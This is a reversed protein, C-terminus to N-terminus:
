QDRPSGGEAAPGLRFLYSVNGFSVTDFDSLVASRVRRGNVFVGNTSAADEVVVREGDLRLVAHIRSVTADTIRLGAEPARGVYVRDGSLEHAEASGPDMPLLFRRPTAREPDAPPPPPGPEAVPAPPEVVPAAPADPVITEAAAGLYHRDPEAAAPAADGKRRAAAVLRRLASRFDGDFRRRAERRNLEDLLRAVQRARDALAEALRAREAKLEEMEERLVALARGREELRAKLSEVQLSDRAPRGELWSPPPTPSGDLRARLGDRELTLSAIQASQEVIEQEREELRAALQVLQEELLRVREAGTSRLAALEAALELNERELRQERPSPPAAAAAEAGELEFAFDDAPLLALAEGGSASTEWGLGPVPGTMRATLEIDEIETTEEVQLGATPLEELASGRPAHEHTRNEGTM